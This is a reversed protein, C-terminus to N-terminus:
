LSGGAEIEQTSPNLCAGGGPKMSKMKFQSFELEKINAERKLENLDSMQSIM